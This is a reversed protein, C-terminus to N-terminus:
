LELGAHSTKHLKGVCISMKSYQHINKKMDMILVATVALCEQNSKQASCHNADKPPNDSKTTCGSSTHIAAEKNDDTTAKSGVRKM